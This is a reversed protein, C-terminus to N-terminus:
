SGGRRDRRPARRQAPEPGGIPPAADAIRDMLSAALRLVQRETETLSALASALWADRGAMDQALAARGAPTMDIVLRRRDRGSRTRSVLGARELEAFVRTLSQPQQHEAAALDGPTSPGHRYLHALVGLKNPSLGGSPREARLRRALRLAGRRIEAASEILPDSNETAMIIHL